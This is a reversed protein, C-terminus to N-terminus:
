VALSTLHGPSNSKFMAHFATFSSSFPFPSYVQLQIAFIAELLLVVLLCIRVGSTAAM